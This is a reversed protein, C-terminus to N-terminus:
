ALFTWRSYRVSSEYMAIWMILWLLSLCFFIILLGLAALIGTIIENRAVGVVVVAVVVGQIARLKIDRKFM